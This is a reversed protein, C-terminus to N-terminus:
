ELINPDLNVDARLLKMTYGFEAQIKNSGEYDDSQFFIM